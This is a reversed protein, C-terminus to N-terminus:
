GKELYDFDDFRQLAMLEDTSIAGMAKKARLTVADGYKEELAARLNRIDRETLMVPKGIKRITTTALATAM